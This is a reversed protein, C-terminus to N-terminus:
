ARAPRILKVPASKGAPQDFAAVTPVAPSPPLSSTSRVMSSHRACSCSAEATVAPALESPNTSPASCTLELTVNAGETAEARDSRAPNFVARANNQKLCAM